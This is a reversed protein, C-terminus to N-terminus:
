PEGEEGESLGPSRVTYFRGLLLMLGYEIMLSLIIVTVTWAFLDATELHIKAGYLGRGVSLAPSGIVEASIGAKWAFGMGTSAAAAFYPLLSPVYILRIKKFRSFRFVHAMELLRRDVQNLGSRLNSFVMPLVILFAIFVPVGDLPLWVLALIIFSAVPTAKIIGMPFSLLSAAVPVLHALAALATGAILALSFGGMVRLLSAGVSQWFRGEGSLAVLRAAVAAPSAVLVDRGVALYILQWVFLWLLPSLLLLLPYKKGKEKDLLSSPKM